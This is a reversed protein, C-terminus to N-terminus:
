AAIRYAGPLTETITAGAADRASVRLTVLGPGSTFVLRFHDAGLRLVPAQQWTRGGNLSVQALVSTIPSAPAQQLHGVTLGVRQRGPSTAGSLSEGLVNYDLTLMDQVACHRTISRATLCWWPGTVSAGPEPRSPWTWVDRSAASLHYHRNARSATLVFKIVSARRSLGARLFLDSEGGSVREANGGAIWRGGQYIAYRGTVRDGPGSGFGSGFGSGTHGFTDDSFPTVDLYLENGVRAASPISAFVSTGPQSADVGPHLPYRNWAESLHQGGHVLRWADTQGGTGDSFVSYFTSWLTAPRASMYQIERGPLPLSIGICAFFGGRAVQAPTGGFTCSEGSSSRVDQYFTERDTALAGPGPAYRQDAPILGSPEALNLQYVYPEGRQRRPSTLTASTSVNLSGVSPARSVPSIWLTIPPGNLFEISEGSQSTSREITLADSQLASRRPTGFSIESTAAAEAVHVTTDGRVTFQPLVDERVEGSRGHDTIQFFDGLAWYTGDPASYRVSGHYFFNISDFVGIAGLNNVNFLEVDDGTDPKGSLTTGTVTVTHMPFRPRAAPAAAVGPLGISLGASFLGDTGYSGRAHDAEFQRALAAGFTLAGSPTLYGDALGSGTSTVTVGPLAPLRGQYRIAVPLRGSPEAHELTSVEFLSPSLGHNLYPLAVMPILLVRSGLRLLQTPGALGRGSRLVDATHPGVLAQVGNILLVRAAAPPRAAPAQAASTGIALAPATLLAAAALFAALVAVARLL